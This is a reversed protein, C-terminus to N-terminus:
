MNFLIRREEEPYVDDNDLKMKVRPMARTAYCCAGLFFIAPLAFVHCPADNTSTYSPLFTRILRLKLGM